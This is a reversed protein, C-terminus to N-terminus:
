KIKQYIYLKGYYEIRHNNHDEFCKLCINKNCDICYNDYNDYHKECINNIENYNIIKHKKNHYQLMNSM